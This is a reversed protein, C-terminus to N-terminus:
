LPPLFIGYFATLSFFFFLVDNVMDVHNLFRINGIALM